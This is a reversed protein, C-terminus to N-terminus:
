ADRLRVGTIANAIATGWADPQELFGSHAGPLVQLTAGPIAQALQESLYPPTWQDHGGVMVAAPTGPPVPNADARFSQVAEAQRFFGHDTQRYPNNVIIQVLAEHAEPNNILAPSYAMRVLFRAYLDFPMARRVNVLNSTAARVFGDPAIFTSMLVLQRVRAPNSRALAQAIVGGMSWGVIVASEIALHGLLDDVDDAMQAIAYPEDPADSRGAGRNDFTLVRFRKSLEPALFRWVQLDAGLGCILAVPEGSGSEEYYTTFGNRTFASM